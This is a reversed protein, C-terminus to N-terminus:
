SASSRWCQERPVDWPDGRRSGETGLISGPLMRAIGALLLMAGAFTGAPVDVTRGARQAGGGGADPRAHDRGADRDGTGRPFHLPPVEHGHVHVPRLLLPVVHLPLRGRGGQRSGGLREARLWYMLGLPALGTWPFLAYGLQWLYFRISTDDGENTDHVHQTARNWMDHFILRDTFLTGHRVYMAIFWPLALGCWM